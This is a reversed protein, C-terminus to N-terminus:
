EQREWSTHQVEHCDVLRRLTTMALNKGLGGWGGMTEDARGLPFYITERQGGTPSRQSEGWIGENAAYKGNHM